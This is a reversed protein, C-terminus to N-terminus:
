GFAIILAGGSMSRKGRIGKWKMQLLARTRRRKKLLNFVLPFLVECDGAGGLLVEEVELNFGNETSLSM